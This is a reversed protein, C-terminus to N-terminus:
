AASWSSEEIGWGFINELDGLRDAGLVCAGDIVTAMLQAFLSLQQLVLPSSLMGLHQTLVLDTVPPPAVAATLARGQVLVLDGCLLESVPGVMSHVVHQLEDADFTAFARRIAQEAEESCRWRQGPDAGTGSLTARWPGQAALIMAEPLVDDLAVSMLMCMASAGVMSELDLQAQKLSMGCARALEAAHDRWMRRQALREIVRHALWHVAELQDDRGSLRSLTAIRGMLAGPNVVSKASCANSVLVDVDRVGAVARAHVSVLGSLPGFPADVDFGITAGPPAAGSVAVRPDCRMAVERIEREYAERAHEMIEVPRGRPPRHLSWTLPVVLSPRAGWAEVTDANVPEGFTVLATTLGDDLSLERTDGVRSSGAVWEDAFGNIADCLDASSLCFDAGPDDGHTPKDGMHLEHLGREALGMTYAFGGGEHEDGASVAQM